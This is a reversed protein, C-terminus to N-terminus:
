DKRILRIAEQYGNQNIIVLYIGSRLNRSVVYPTNNQIDNLDSIKNGTIDFLAATIPADSDSHIMITFDGSTPNPYVVTEFGENILLEGEPESFSKTENDCSKGCEGLADGYHNGLHSPVASAGISLTQPNNPNGPPLHCIIVKDANNGNGNGNGNGKGNNGNGNGGVRIDKVCITVDCSSTCGNAYTVTLTYTFYGETTATFTPNPCNTCSLNAGSSWQYSVPTGGSVSSSLVTSLGGYGIYLNYPNGGTFVNSTPISTISCTPADPISVTSVCTSSNGNFDTVTLIVQNDGADSCTFIEQSLTMSAIGGCNDFSNNNVDSVHISAMGNNVISLNVDNCIAVPPTVDNIIVNQAQHVINGNLDEYTWTVVYSGQTNYSTPDSTTATILGACNDMATPAILVASCEAVVDPLVAVTPVPANVDIVQVTANCTAINGSFDEASVVVTNLGLNSCDFSTQSVTIPKVICNDSLSELLALENLNALGNAGLEIVINKCTLVPSITDMVKVGAMCTSVNGYTDTVTLSVGQTSFIDNCSFSTNSLSLNINSCVDYSGNNIDNPTISVYGNNDLYVIINKCLAVPPTVDTIIINQSQNSVNGHGDDYTWTVMYNGPTNYSVPDSTTATIVGNCNDMATPATLEASCEAVVDPLVAVTPIPANVDIVQVTANCTGINGSNDIGYVVVSNTGLNSCDFTSQSLWVSTVTCAEHDHHLVQGNTLTAVGNGDLYITANQCHLDPVITDLVTVIANCTSVNGSEDTVTLTVTNEGTQSCNFSMDNAAISLTVNGCADYSGNNIDAANLAAIGGHNLYLTVNKCNAVPPTIDAASNVVVNSSATCGNADTVTITYSGSALGSFNGNSQSSGGNLSYIYPAVGGSATVNISGNNLGCESDNVPGSISIPSTSGEVYVTDIGTCHNGDVITVVYMGAALGSISQSNSSYGNPGVWSYSFPAVGGPMSATANGDTKGCSAPNSSSQLPINTACPVTINFTRVASGPQPCYNDVANISVAYTNSAHASTATFCFEANVFGPGSSIVNLTAPPMIGSNASLTINNNNGDTVTVPVCITQGVQVVQNNIPAISPVLNSGCNIVAVELDRYIEGIKVGNRYEEARIGIVARQGIVTPTFNIVGTTPNITVPTSSSIPNLYNFSSAYTVNSPNLLNTGRRPPVLSYVLADGDPDYANLSLSALQNVCYSANSPNLFVPSNNMLNSTQAPITTTLYTEQSGPNSLNTIGNARCCESFALKLPFNQTKSVTLTGEFTYEQIGLINSNPSTCRTVQSSCIVSREIGPGVQGVTLNGVSANTTANILGITYSSSVAIGACDRFLTLRVRYLNSTSNSGVYTYTIDGGVVHSAKVEIFAFFMLLILCFKFWQPKSKKADRCLPTPNGGDSISTLTQPTNM